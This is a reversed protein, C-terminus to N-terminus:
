KAYTIRGNADIETWVLGLEDDSYLFDNSFYLASPISSRSM